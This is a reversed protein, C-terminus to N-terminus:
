GVSAVLREWSNLAYLESASDGREMLVDNYAARRLSEPVIVTDKSVALRYETELEVDDRAPARALLEAYVSRMSRAEQEIRSPGLGYELAQLAAFVVGASIVMVKNESVLAAFAASGSFIAMVRLCADIRRWLRAYRELVRVAYRLCFLTDARARSM